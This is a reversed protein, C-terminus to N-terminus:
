PKAAMCQDWSEYACTKRGGPGGGTNEVLGSKSDADDVHEAALHSIEIGPVYLDTEIMHQSRACQRRRKRSDADVSLRIPVTADARVRWNFRHEVVVRPPAGDDKGHLNPVRLARFGFGDRLDEVALLVDHEGAAGLAVDRSLGLKVLHTMDNAFEEAHEGLVLSVGRLSPLEGAVATSSYHM